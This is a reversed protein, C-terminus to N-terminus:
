RARRLAGFKHADELFLAPNHKMPYLAEGRPAAAPRSLMPAIEFQDQSPSFPQEM